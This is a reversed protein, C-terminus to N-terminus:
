KTEDAFKWRFGCCTFGKANCAYFVSQVTVNCQRSAESMSPYTELHEGSLSMKIVPRGVAKECNVSQTVWELNEPLNNKKNGDIHNVVLGEKYTDHHFTICMLRHLQYKKRHLVIYEYDNKGCGPRLIRITPSIRRIRAKSSMEYKKTLEPQLCKTWFEGPLGSCREFVCDEKVQTKGIWRQMTLQTVNHAKAAMKISDYKGVIENTLTSRKIVSIGRNATGNSRTNVRASWYLNSARCDSRDGNKFRVFPLNDPNPIFHEAVVRAIRYVKGKIGVIMDPKSMSKSLIQSSPSKVNGESGVMYGPEHKMEVWMEM